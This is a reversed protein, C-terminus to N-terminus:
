IDRCGTQYIFDLLYLFEDKFTLFDKESFPKPSNMLYTFNFGNSIAYKVFKGFEEYTKIKANYSAREISVWHNFDQNPANNYFSTVQSKKLTANLEIIEDITKSNFPLPTSFEYIGTQHPTIDLEDSQATQVVDKSCGSLAAAGAALIGSKILERRKM